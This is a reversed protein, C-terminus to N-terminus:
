LKVKIDRNKYEKSKIKKLLDQVCLFILGQNIDKKKTNYINGFMTYTKGTGTLGYAFVTSNFGKLVNDALSSFSRKFIEENTM